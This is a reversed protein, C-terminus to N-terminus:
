TASWGTSNELERHCVMVNTAPWTAQCSPWYNMIIAQLVQTCEQSDLANMERWQGRGVYRRRITLWCGNFWTLFAPCLYEQDHPLIHTCIFRSSWAMPSWRGLQRESENSRQVWCVHIIRESPSFRLNGKRERRSSKLHVNPSHFDSEFSILMPIFKLDVTGIKWFSNSAENTSYHRNIAQNFHTHYDCLGAVHRSITYVEDTPIRILYCLLLFTTFQCHVFRSPHSTM